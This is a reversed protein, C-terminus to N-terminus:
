PVLYSGVTQVATEAGGALSPTSPFTSQFQTEFWAVSTGSGPPTLFGSVGSLDPVALSTSSGLYNQTAEVLVEYQPGSVPTWTFNGENFVGTKGAYGTYDFKFTPLSAPAPGTTTWPVPLSVTV